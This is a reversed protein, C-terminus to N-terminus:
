YGSKRDDLLDVHKALKIKRNYPYKRLFKNIIANKFNLQNIDNLFVTRIKIEQIFCCNYQITLALIM